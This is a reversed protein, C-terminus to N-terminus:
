APVPDRHAAARRHAPHGVIPPVLRGGVRRDVRRDGFGALVDGPYHAGTAVRSFGVLGALVALALGLPPSELGVGGAFAAASASHGSPM